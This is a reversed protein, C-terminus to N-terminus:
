TGIDGVYTVLCGQYGGAVITLRDLFLVEEIGNVANDTTKLLTGLYERVLLFVGNGVVLTAM